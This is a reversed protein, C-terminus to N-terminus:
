LVVHLGSALKASITAASDTESAVYVRSFDVKDSNQWGGTPGNKNREVRPVNLTYRNGAETIYPKEAILPTAGTNTIPLGGQNGCHSGPAGVCGTFVM